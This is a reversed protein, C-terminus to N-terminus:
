AACEVFEDCEIASCVRKVVESWDNGTNRFLRVSQYWPMDGKLGYRWHPRSGIMAYTKIGVAGAVHVATQQVTVVADVAQFLAAQAAIDRGLCDGDLAVLGISERQKRVEPNTHEYQGSVCTYRLLPALNGPVMSRDEVRTRKSGGFWALALYPGPGMARLRERYARVLAQDPKLYPKGPFSADSRRYRAALSALAVKATYDGPEAETIVNIQPWTLQAIKQVAPNVELTVRKALPFVDDLCSLFMVEDGIGQEGHVYLHETPTFDWYSLGLSERTDFGDLKLRYEYDDWGDWDKLTLRALGRQWHAEVMEPEIKLARNIWHLANEPDARDSYLGAMNSCVEVTDGKIKLARKWCRIAEDYKDEMRYGIGLNCWAEANNPTLQVLSTLLNIALGAYEKRLYLDGLLFLLAEDFPNGNLLCNYLHSAEDFRKAQHLKIAQQLVEGEISM